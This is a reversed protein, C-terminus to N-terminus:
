EGLDYSPIYGPAVNIILVNLAAYATILALAYGAVSKAIPAVSKGSGTAASAVVLSAVSVINAIGPKVGPLPSPAVAEILHLGIALAALRAIRHDDAGATIHVAKMAHAPETTSRTM